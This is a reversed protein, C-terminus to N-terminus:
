RRLKQQALPAVLPGEYSLRADPAAAARKFAAQADATRGLAELCLGMLYAVTGASVGPGEPLKTSELAAYADEWNGLRMHVIALNLRAAATGGTAGSGGLEQLELLARNYSLSPDRLPLTDPVMAVQGAVKRSQGAANRVELPLDSTGPRVAAVRARLEAVSAIPTGGASVITDGM